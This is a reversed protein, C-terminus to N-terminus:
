GIIIEIRAFPTVYSALNSSVAGRKRIRHNKRSFLKVIYFSPCNNQGDKQKVLRNLDENKSFMRRYIIRLRFNFKGFSRFIERLKEM